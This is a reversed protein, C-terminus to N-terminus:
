FALKRHNLQPKSLIGNKLQRSAGIPSGNNRLHMMLASEPSNRFM